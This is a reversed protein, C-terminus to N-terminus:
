AKTIRTVSDLDGICAAGIGQMHKVSLGIGRRVKWGLVTCIKETLIASIVPPKCHGRWTNPVIAM